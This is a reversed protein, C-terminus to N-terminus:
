TTKRGYDQEAALARVDIMSVTLGSDDILPGFSQWAAECQQCNCSSRRDSKLENCRRCAPVLNSNFDVGRTFVRRLFTQAVIHDRTTAENDCYHCRQPLPDSM